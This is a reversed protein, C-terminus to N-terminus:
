LSPIVYSSVHTWEHMSNLNSVQLEINTDSGDEDFSLSVKMHNVDATLSTDRMHQYLLDGAEWPRMVDTGCQVDPVLSVDPMEDVMRAMASAWVTAAAQLRQRMFSPEKNAGDELEGKDFWFVADACLLSTM